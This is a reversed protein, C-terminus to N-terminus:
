QNKMLTSVAGSASKGVATAITFQTSSVAIKLSMDSGTSMVEAMSMHPVASIFDRSSQFLDRMNETQVTAIKEIISPGGTKDAHSVPTLQAVNSVDPSQMLSAFSAADQASPKKDSSIDHAASTADAGSVNMGGSVASIASLDSSM